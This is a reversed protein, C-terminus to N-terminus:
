QDWYDRLIAGVIRFGDIYKIKKGAARTRAHYSVPVERIRYGARVLAPGILSDSTFGGPKFLSAAARPLLKYCTNADTLRLGYLFNILETICWVGARILPSGRKGTHALYRSGYVATMHDDVACLLAPIDKPDYELDADQILFYDGAAERFGDLLATGKGGNETRFIKRMPFELARLVNQTGDTSADDVVIVECKWGDPMPVAFVRRLLEAVHLRENYCPIVVSLTRM